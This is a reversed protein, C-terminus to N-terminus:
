VRYNDIRVSTQACLSDRQKRQEKKKRYLPADKIRAM